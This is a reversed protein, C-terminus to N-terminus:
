EPKDQQADEARTIKVLDGEIASSWRRPKHTTQLRTRCSVIYDYQSVPFSDSAGIELALIRARISPAKTM